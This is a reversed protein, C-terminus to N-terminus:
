AAMERLLQKGQYEEVMDEATRVCHRLEDYLVLGHRATMECVCRQCLREGFFMVANADDFRVCYLWPRADYCHQCYGSTISLLYLTQKM